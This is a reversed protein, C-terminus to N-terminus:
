CDSVNRMRVICFKVVVAHSENREGAFSEETPRLVPRETHTMSDFRENSTPEQISVAREDM